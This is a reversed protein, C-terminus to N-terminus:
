RCCSTLGFLAHVRGGENGAAERPGAYHHHKPTGWCRNCSYCNPRFLWHPCGPKEPNQSHRSIPNWESRPAAAPVSQYDLKHSFMRLQTPRAQRRKGLPLHRSLKCLRELLSLLPKVSTGVEGGPHSPHWWAALQTHMLESGPSSPQPAPELQDQKLAAQEGQSAEAKM